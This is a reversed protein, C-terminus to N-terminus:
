SRETLGDGITIQMPLNVLGINERTEDVHLHFLDYRRDLVVEDEGSARKVVGISFFYEGGNLNLPLKFRVRCVEGADARGYEMGRRETNSGFMPLGDVTKITMGYIVGEAAEAFAVATEITITEGSRCNTAIEEGQENVVRFDIIKAGRNGWRYEGPNYAPRLACADLSADLNLQSPDRAPSGERTAADSAAKTGSESFMGELYRNVVQKPDGACVVRGRDLLLARNCHAIVADTAHTVFLIAVGANKLQELKRFCKRQFKIDGVALAEDIILIDPDMNISVSFALRVYMGSSYTKIPKDIFDGLESFAVIDPIKVRLEEKSLGVISANLRINEMGTFEPNFGAGLELIAAVRGKVRVDGGTPALTGAIIQLLTSKGSGNRGIIGVTQGRAVSLDVDRLAWFEDYLKRRQGIFGQFLRHIPKNYSQYCKSLKDTTVLVESSM